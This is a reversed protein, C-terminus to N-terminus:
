FIGIIAILTVLFNPFRTDFTSEDVVRKAAIANVLAVFSKIIICFMKKTGNENWSERSSFVFFDYVFRYVFVSIHLSAYDCIL